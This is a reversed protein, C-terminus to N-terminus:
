TRGLATRLWDSGLVCAHFGADKGLASCVRLGKTPNSVEHAKKWEKDLMVLM